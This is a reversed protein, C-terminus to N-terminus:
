ANFHSQHWPNRNLNSLVNTM